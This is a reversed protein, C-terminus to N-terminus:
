KGAMSCGNCASCKTQCSGANSVAVMNIDITRKNKGALIRRVDASWGPLFHKIAFLIAAIFIVGMVLSELWEHNM